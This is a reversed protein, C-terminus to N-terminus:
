IEVVFPVLFCKISSREGWCFKKEGDNKKRKKKEFSGRSVLWKKVFNEPFIALDRYNTRMMRAREVEEVGRFRDERDGTMCLFRSDSWRLVELYFKLLLKANRMWSPYTHESSSNSFFDDSFIHFLAITLFYICRFPSMGPHLYPRRSASVFNFQRSTSHCRLIDSSVNDGPFNLCGRTHM